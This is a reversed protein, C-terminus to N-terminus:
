GTLYLEIHRDRYGISKLEVVAESRTIYERRFWGLVDALTPEKYAIVAQSDWLAIYDNIRDGRIKANDLRKRATTEDIAGSTYLQKVLKLEEKSAKIAIQLAVRTLYLNVEYPDYGLGGLLESADGRDLLGDKYAGLIDSKTLDREKQGREFIELEARDDPNLALVGALKVMDEADSANYGLAEYGKGLDSEPIIGYRYMRRLDVRTRPRYAIQKMWDVTGPMYDAYRLLKDLTPDDIVGRHLMEFAQQPSPLVWHSAWAKGLPERDMGIASLDAEANSVFDEFGEDLKLTSRADTDYVERVAFRIIDQVGPIPRSVYELNGIECADFGLRRILKDREEINIKGRRWLSIAESVNPTRLINRFLRSARDADFGHLRMEEVFEKEKYLDQNRQICLDAPDLINNPWATNAGQGIKRSAAVGVAPIAFVIGLLNVLDASAGELTDLLEAEIPKLRDIIGSVM